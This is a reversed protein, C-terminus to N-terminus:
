YSEKESAPVGSWTLGYYKSEMQLLCQVLEAELIPLFPPKRALQKEAMVEASITEYVFWSLTTKPVYCVIAPNKLEM